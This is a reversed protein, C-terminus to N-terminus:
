IPYSRSIYFGGTCIVIVGHNEVYAGSEPLGITPFPYVKEIVVFDDSDDIRLTGEGRWAEIPILEM